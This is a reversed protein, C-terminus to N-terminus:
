TERTLKYKIKSNPYIVNFQVRLKGVNEGVKFGRLPIIYDERPDLVGWNATDIKIPGDFHPIEIIKGQVSNEFSIRTNWVLDLGQRLFEPHDDIKINFKIDGPNDGHNIPQQGLGHGIIVNGNSVGAPIKLELNLSELRRGKNCESCGYSNGGVGGCAGCQQNIMMPGMNHQIHGRGRCQQCKNRCAFCTKDLTIRLNRTTGRWSEEFSIRLDHEVDACRQPGRPAGAGFAGSFMQSFLDGPNFMPPGDVSGYQDLNQRKQPDSLIEYAEQIKKFQEPDGGKDPHHQRALNRYAKKIDAEQADKSVGLVEYPGTM